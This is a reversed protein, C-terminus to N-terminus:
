SEKMPRVPVIEMGVITGAAGPESLQPPGLEAGIKGALLDAVMHAFPGDTDGQQMKLMDLLATRAETMKRLTLGDEVENINHTYLLYALEAAHKDLAIDIRADKDLEQWEGKNLATVADRILVSGMWRKIALKKETETLAAWFEPSIYQLAMPAPLGANLLKVFQLATTENLDVGARMAKGAARNRAYERTRDRRPPRAAEKAAALAEAEAAAAAERLALVRAKEKRNHRARQEANRGISM